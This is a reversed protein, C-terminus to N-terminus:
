WRVRIKSSTTSPTTPPTTAAKAGTAALPTAVLAGDAGQKVTATILKGTAKDYFKVILQMDRYEHPWSPDWKILRPFWLFAYNGKGLPAFPLLARFRQTGTATDWVYLRPTANNVPKGASDLLKLTLTLFKTPSISAVDLLPTGNADHPLGSLGAIPSASGAAYYTLTKTVLNGAKDQGNLTLTYTGAVNTPLTGSATTTGNDNATWTLPIEVATESGPAQVWASGNTSAGSGGNEDVVSFDLPQGLPSVGYAAGDYLAPGLVLTPATGDPPAYEVISEVPGDSGTGVGVYTNTSPPVGIAIDGAYSQGESLPFDGQSAGSSNFVAVAYNSYVVRVLHDAGVAISGPGSEMAWDTPLAGATSFRWIHYPYGGGSMYMSNDSPDIALRAPGNVYAWMDRPTGVASGDWAYEALASGHVEGDNYYSLVWANGHSDHAISRAGPESAIIPSGVSSGDATSFRVIRGNDPDLAWLVGASVSIDPVSSFSSSLQVPSSLGLGGPVTGTIIWQPAGAPNFKTITTASDLTVDVVYVNGAADVAVSGGSLLAGDAPYQGVQQYNWVVAQATLPVLGAVVLLALVAVVAFSARFASKLAVHGGSPWRQTAEASLDRRDSSAREESKSQRCSKSAYGRM